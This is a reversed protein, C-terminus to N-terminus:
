CILDQGLFTSDLVITYRVKLQRFSITVEGRYTKMIVRSYRIHGAKTKSKRAGTSKTPNKMRSFQLLFENTVSNEGQLM